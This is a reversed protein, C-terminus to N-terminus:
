NVVQRIIWKLLTLRMKMRIGFVVLPLKILDFTKPEYFVSPKIIIGSVQMSQMHELMEHEQEADWGTNCITLLYGPKLRLKV